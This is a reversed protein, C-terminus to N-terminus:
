PMAGEIARSVRAAPDGFRCEAGKGRVKAALAVDGTAPVAIGFWVWAADDVVAGGVGAVDGVDAVDRVAAADGATADRAAANDVVALHDAVPCAAAVVDTAGAEMAFGPMARDAGTARGSGTIGDCAAVAGDRDVAIRDVARDVAIPLVLTCRHGFSDPGVDM